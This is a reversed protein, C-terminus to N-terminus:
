EYYSSPTMFSDTLRELSFAKEIKNLYIKHTEKFEQWMFKYFAQSRGGMRHRFATEQAEKRKWSVIIPHYKNDNLIRNMILRGIRGNGDSFPHIREFKYYFDFALEPPYMTKRKEEYWKFLEKLRPKIEEAPAVAENGATVVGMRIGLIDPEHKMLAHHLDVTRKINFTYDNEVYNLATITNEVEAIMKVKKKKVVNEIESRPVKSGELRNSNYIFDVMFATNMAGAGVHGMYQKERFLNARLSELDEISVYRLFRENTIRPKWYKIRERKEERKLYELFERQKDSLDSISETNGLSKQKQITKAYAVYISDYAYLYNKGNVHKVTTKM